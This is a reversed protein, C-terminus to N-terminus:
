KEVRFRVTGNALNYNGSGNNKVFVRITDDSVVHGWFLLNATSTGVSSFGVLVPDGQKAGFQTVTTSDTAGAALDGPNWTASEMPIRRFVERWFNGGTESECMFLSKTGTPIRQTRNDLLFLRGSGTAGVSNALLTSDDSFQVLVQQNIQGGLFATLSDVRGTSTSLKLYTTNLVSIQSSDDAGGARDLTRVGGLDMLKIPGLNGDTDLLEPPTARKIRATMVGAATRDLMFDYSSQTISDATQYTNLNTGSIVSFIRTLATPNIVVSIGRNDNNGDNLVQTHIFNTQLTTANSLFFETKGLGEYSVFWDGLTNTANPGIKFYYSEDRAGTGFTEFRVQGYTGDMAGDIYVAVTTDNVGFYNGTISGGYLRANTM